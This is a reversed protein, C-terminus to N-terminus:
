LTTACRDLKLGTVTLGALTVALVACELTVTSDKGGSFSVVVRHGDRYIPLLRDIAADFVSIGIPQRTKISM